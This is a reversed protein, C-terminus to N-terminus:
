WGADEDDYVWGGDEIKNLDAGFFGVQVGNRNLLKTTESNVAALALFGLFPVMSAFGMMCAWFPDRIAWYILFAYVGGAVGLILTLFLPVDMDISSGSLFGMMLLAAVWMSIQALVCAIVWRQYRALRRLEEGPLRPHDDDFDPMALYSV